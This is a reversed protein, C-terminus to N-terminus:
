PSTKGAGSCMANKSYISAGSILVAIDHHLKCKHIDSGNELRFIGNSVMEDFVKKTLSLKKRLIKSVKVKESYKSVIKLEVDKTFEIMEGIISYSPAEIEAGSRKLLETDMAYRQALDSDNNMFQNLLTQGISKPNIRSYITLNWISKCSACRYILWIDLYKQQANVRFLGSSVYETKMDCRKCYRITKPPSLYQVEWLIEEM